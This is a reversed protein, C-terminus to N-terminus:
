APSVAEYKMQSKRSACLPIPSTIYPQPWLPLHPIPDQDTSHTLVHALMRHLIRPRIVSSLSQAKGAVIMTATEATLELQDLGKGTDPDKAKEIYSFVDKKEVDTAMLRIGLLKRIFKVFRDRARIADPFLTARIARTSLEPAQALVGLRVNSKEIARIAYRFKDNGITNYQTSFLVDTM